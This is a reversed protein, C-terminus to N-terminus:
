LALTMGLTHSRETPGKGMTKMAYDFSARPGAWSVGWSWGKLATYAEEFLGARVSFDGALAVDGALVWGREGEKVGTMIRYGDAMLQFGSGFAYVAGGGLTRPSDGERSFVNELTLGGRIDAFLPFLAGLDGELFREYNPENHNKIWRFAMGGMVNGTISHASGFRFESRDIYSQRNNSIRAKAVRSYGFAGKINTGGDYLGVSFARGKSNFDPIKPMQYHFFGFASDLYALSAPNAFLGERPVGFRNAGGMGQVMPSDVTAFSISGGLFLGALVFLLFANRTM